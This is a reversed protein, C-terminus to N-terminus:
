HLLLMDCADPPDNEEAVRADDEEEKDDVEEEEEEEIDDFELKDVTPSKLGVDLYFVEAVAAIPGCTRYRKTLICFSSPVTGLLIRQM